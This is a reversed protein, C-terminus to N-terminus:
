SVIHMSNFSYSLYFDQEKEQKFAVAYSVFYFEM